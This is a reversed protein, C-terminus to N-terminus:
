RNDLLGHSRLLSLIEAVVDEIKGFDPWVALEGKPGNPFENKVLVGFVVKGLDLLHTEVLLGTVTSMMYMALNCECWGMEDGVDLRGGIGDQLRTEEGVGVCVAV